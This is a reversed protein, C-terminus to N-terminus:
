LGIYKNLNYKTKIRSKKKKLLCILLCCFLSNDIGHDHTWIGFFHVEYVKITIQTAKSLIIQFNNNNNNAIWARYM